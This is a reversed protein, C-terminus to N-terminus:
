VHKPSSSLYQPSLFSPLKIRAHSRLKLLKSYNNMYSLFSCFTISIADFNSNKAAFDCFGDLPQPSQGWAGKTICKLQMPKNLVLGSNSLKQAFLNVKSELCERKSFDQKRKQDFECSCVSKELLQIRRM